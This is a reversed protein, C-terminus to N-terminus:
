RCLFGREDPGRRETVRILGVKGCVYCYCKEIVKRQQFDGDEDRGDLWPGMIYTTLIRFVGHCFTPNM